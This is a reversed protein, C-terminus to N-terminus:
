LADDAPNSIPRLWQERPEVPIWVNEPDWDPFGQSARTATPGGVWLGRLTLRWEVQRNVLAWEQGTHDRAVSVVMGSVPSVLCAEPGLLERAEDDWLHRRSLLRSEADVRLRHLPPCAPVDAFAQTQPAYRRLLARSSKSHPNMLVPPPRHLPLDLRQPEVEVHQRVEAHSRLGPGSSRPAIM